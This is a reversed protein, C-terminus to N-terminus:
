NEKRTLGFKVLEFEIPKVKNIEIPLVFYLDYNSEGRTLEVMEVMVSGISDYYVAESLKGNVKAQMQGPHFNYTKDSANSIHLDFFLLIASGDSSTKMSNLELSLEIDDYPVYKYTGLDKCGILALSLILFLPFLNKTM